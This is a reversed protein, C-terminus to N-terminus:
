KESTIQKGFPEKNWMRFIMSLPVFFYASNTVLSLVPNPSPHAGFLGESMSLIMSSTLAAGYLFGWNRM